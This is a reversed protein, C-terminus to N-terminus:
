RRKRHFSRWSERWIHWDGRRLHAGSMFARTDHRDGEIVASLLLRALLGTEFAYDRDDGYAEDLRGMIGDIEAAAKKFRARIEREPIESLLAAAAAEYSIDKKECRYSFGLRQAPDVCDFLRHHAGIAFAILEACM